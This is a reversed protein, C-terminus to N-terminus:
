AWKETQVYCINMSLFCLCNNHQDCVFCTVLFLSVNKYTKPITDRYYCCHFSELLASM